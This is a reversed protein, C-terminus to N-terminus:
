GLPPRKKKTFVARRIAGIHWWFLKKPDNAKGRIESRIRYIESLPVRKLVGLYYGFSGIGKRATEHFEKRLEYVISHLQSHIGKGGRKKIAQLIDTKLGIM